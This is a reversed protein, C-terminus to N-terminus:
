IGASYNIHTSVTLNPNIDGVTTVSNNIKYTNITSQTKSAITFNNTSSTAVVGPNATTSSLSPKISTTAPASSTQTIGKSTSTAVAPTLSKGTSLTPVIRPISTAFHNRRSSGIIDSNPATMELVDSSKTATPISIKHTQITFNLKSTNSSMCKNNIILQANAFWYHVNDM